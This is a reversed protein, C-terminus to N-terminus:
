PEITEALYQLAALYGRWGMGAVYTTAIAAYVDHHRWAERAFVNSIHVEVLPLHADALADRLALGYHSLAGGNLIIGSAQEQHEQLFDVLAGEHNSQFFIVELGLERGREELRKNVEELTVSGYIAPERKGLRNLNPGQLVLIRGAM